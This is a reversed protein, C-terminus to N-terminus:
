KLYASFYPTIEKLMKDAVLPVMVAFVNLNVLADVNADSRAAAIMRQSFDKNVKKVEEYIEHLGKLQWEPKKGAQERILQAVLFLSTMRFVTEELSAFPLHFRVMPKLPELSPCGSTTMIIGLLPSLGERISTVKYYMREKVTVTVHVADDTTIDRFDQTIGSLNAAVPCYPHITSDLTCNACQKYELSVWDPLDLGQESDLSLTEKDLLVDFKKASGNEFKYDYRIKFHEKM